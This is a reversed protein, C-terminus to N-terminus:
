KHYDIIEINYANNDHWEFCIRWQNNIRISYQGKRKGQLQELHNSPPIRLRNISNADDLNWLKMRARRQISLPLKDSWKKNYIKETEKCKFNVIMEKNTIYYRMAITDDLSVVKYKIVCVEYKVGQVYCIGSLLNFLEQIGYIM